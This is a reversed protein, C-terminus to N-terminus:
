NRKRLVITEIAVSMSEDGCRLRCDDAQSRGNAWGGLLLEYLEEDDIRELNIKLWGKWPTSEFTEPSVKILEEVEEQPTKVVCRNEDERLTAFIKNRVRFDPTGQHSKAEAEPLALALRRFEDPNM